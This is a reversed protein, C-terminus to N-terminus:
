HAVPYHRVTKRTSHHNWALWNTSRDSFRRAAVIGLALSISLLMANATRLTTAGFTCLVPADSLVQISFALFNLYLVVAITFAFVENWAGRLHFRRWALIALAAAYVGIMAVKRSLLSHNLQFLLAAINSLLSSRLFWIARREILRKTMLDSLVVAGSSLALVCLVIYIFLLVNSM